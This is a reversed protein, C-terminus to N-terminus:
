KRKITIRAPRQVTQVIKARIEPSLIRDAVLKDIAEVDGFTQSQPTIVVEFKNNEVGANAVSVDDRLEGEADIVAFVLKEHESFVHANAEKHAELAEIARTYKELSNQTSM